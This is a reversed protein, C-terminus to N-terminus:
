CCQKLRLNRERTEMKYNEGRTQRREKEKWPGFVKGLRKATMLGSSRIVSVSNISSVAITKELFLKNQQCERQNKVAFGSWTEQM